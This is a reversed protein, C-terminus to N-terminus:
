KPFLLTLQVRAGWNEPGGDPSDAWYRVCAGISIPRGGPALMQNVAANVPVSWLEHEWDYATETQLTFTTKTKTIFSVFPQLFTSM